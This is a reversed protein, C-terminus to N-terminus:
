KTKMVYVGDWDEPPPEQIYEKCREIYVKSPGDDPRISAAKQFAQLAKDFNRMKYQTLGENYAELVQKMENSIM